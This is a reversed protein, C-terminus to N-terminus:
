EPMVLELRVGLLRVPRELEFLDLVLGLVRLAAATITDADTTPAALKRVKTRTHFTATRATVAVRTVIRGSAVVDDLARRALETVASDMEARDTLDRPFTVVHSRSRPIWPETSVHEDGGGKALLLLWLGIRPGFASTLSEADGHALERVTTIGLAALKKATKPGVGWLAEVPRDAMVSMWNADTLAFVGAPKAFGTAVKARQKNDSIGVSCSLGTESAIITRIEEAVDHPDGATVGVYAEDWGWVEVPHGLDRLLGMVQDSAADYAAPDSPLFTVGSNPPCRRAATRLPMGAHVGFERAEYSACTVVKRPETPDGNGGVIVPLGALEPHRRLEVSALFQDLDVHLVWNPKM